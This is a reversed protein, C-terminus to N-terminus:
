EGPSIKNLYVLFGWEQQEGDQLSVSLAWNESGSLQTSRVRVHRVRKLGRTAWLLRLFLTRPFKEWASGLPARPIAPPGPLGKILRPKRKSDTSKKSLM